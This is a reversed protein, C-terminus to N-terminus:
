KLLRGYHELDRHEPVPVHKDNCVFCHASVYGHTHDTHGCDTRRFGCQAVRETNTCSGGLQGWSQWDRYIGVSNRNSRRRGPDHTLNVDADVIFCHQKLRFWVNGVHGLNGAHRLHDVNGIDSFNRILDVNRVLDVNGVDGRHGAGHNGNGRGRWRLERHIRVYIIARDGLDLM